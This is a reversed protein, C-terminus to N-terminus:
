AVALMRAGKGSLLILAKLLSKLENTSKCRLYFDALLGRWRLLEKKLTFPSIQVTLDTLELARELAERIIQSDQGKDLGNIARQVENAIMLIRREPAFGSWKEESLNPHHKLPIM